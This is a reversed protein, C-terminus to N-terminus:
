VTDDVRKGGAIRHALNRQALGQVKYEGTGARRGPATHRKKQIRSTTRRREAAMKYGM